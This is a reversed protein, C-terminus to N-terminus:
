ESSLAAFRSKPWYFDLHYTWLAQNRLVQDQPRRQKHSFPHNKRHSSTICRDRSYILTNLKLNIM